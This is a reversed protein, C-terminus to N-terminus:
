QPFCSFLPLPAYHCMLIWHGASYSVAFLSLCQCFFLFLPFLSSLFRRRSKSELVRIRQHLCEMKESQSRDANSENPNEELKKLRQDQHIINRTNTKIQGLTRSFIISCITVFMSLLISIISVVIIFLTSSRFFSISETDPLTLFNSFRDVSRGNTFQKRFHQKL